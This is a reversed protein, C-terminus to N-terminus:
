FTLKEPSINTMVLATLYLSDLAGVLEEILPLPLSDNQTAGNLDGYDM